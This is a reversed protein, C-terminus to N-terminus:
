KIRECIFERETQGSEIVKFSSGCSNCIYKEFKMFLRLTGNCEPCIPVNTQIVVQQKNM